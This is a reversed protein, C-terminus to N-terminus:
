DDTYKGTIPEPEKRPLNESDGKDYTVLTHGTKDCVRTSLKVKPSDDTDYGM